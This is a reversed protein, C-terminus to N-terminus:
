RWCIEGDFFDPHIYWLEAIVSDLGHLYSNLEYKTYTEYDILQLYTNVLKPNGFIDDDRYEIIYDEPNERQSTEIFEKIRSISFVEFPSLAEPNKYSKYIAMLSSLRGEKENKHSEWLHKYFLHKLEKKKNKM